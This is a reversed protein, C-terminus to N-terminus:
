LGNSFYHVPLHDDPSTRALRVDVRSLHGSVLGLAAGRGFVLRHHACLGM